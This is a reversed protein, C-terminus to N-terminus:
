LIELHVISKRHYIIGREWDVPLQELNKHHASGRGFFGAVQYMSSAPYMPFRNQCDVSLLRNTMSVGCLYAESKSDLISCM